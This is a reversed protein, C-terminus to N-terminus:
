STQAEQINRHGSECGAPRAQRAQWAPAAEEDREDHVVVFRTPLPRRALAVVALYARLGHRMRGSEEAGIRTLEGSQAVAQEIKWLLPVPCACSLRGKRATRGPSTLIALNCGRSVM